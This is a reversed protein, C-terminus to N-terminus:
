DVGACAVGADDAATGSSVSWGSIVADADGEAECSVASIASWDAERRAQCVPCIVSVNGIPQLTETPPATVNGSVNRELAEGRNRFLMEIVM